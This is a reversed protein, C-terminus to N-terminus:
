SGFCPSSAEQWLRTQHKDRSRTITREYREQLWRQFFGFHLSNDDGRGPVFQDFLLEL